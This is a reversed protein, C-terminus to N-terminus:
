GPLRRTRVAAQLETLEPCRTSLSRWNGALARMARKRGKGPGDRGIEDLLPDAWREKPDCHKRVETFRKTDLRDPYLALM